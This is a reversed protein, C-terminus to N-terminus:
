NQKNKNEKELYQNFSGATLREYLDKNKVIEKEDCKLFLKHGINFMLNDRQEALWEFICSLADFFMGILLFPISILIIVRIIIKEILAAKKTKM